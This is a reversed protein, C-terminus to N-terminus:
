FTTRPGGDAKVQAAEPPVPPQDLGALQDGLVTGPLPLATVKAPPPPVQTTPAAPEVAALRLKLLEAAKAMVPLPVALRVTCDPMLTLVLEATVIAKGSANDAALM